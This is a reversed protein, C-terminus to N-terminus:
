IHAYARTREPACRNRELEHITLDSSIDSANQRMLWYGNRNQCEAGSLPTWHGGAHYSPIHPRSFQWTVILIEWDVCIYRCLM